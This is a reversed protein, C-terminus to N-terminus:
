FQAAMAEAAAAMRDLEARGRPCAAMWSVTFLRDEAAEALLQRGTRMDGTASLTSATPDRRVAEDYEDPSVSQM